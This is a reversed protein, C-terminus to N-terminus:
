LCKFWVQSMCDQKQDKLSGHFPDMVMYGFARVIDMVMNGGLSELM